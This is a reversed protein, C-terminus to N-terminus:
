NKGILSFDKLYAQYDPDGSIGIVRVLKGPRRGPKEEFIAIDDGNFDPRDVVKRIYFHYGMLHIVKVLLIVIRDKLTM